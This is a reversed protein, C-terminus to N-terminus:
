ASGRNTLVYVECLVPHTLNRGRALMRDSVVEFGFSKFLARWETVQRFTCPGTRGRWQQNHIWCVGKDWWTKPIDEYIVVLSDDRLVRRVEKLLVSVDQAHHLVYCLLM